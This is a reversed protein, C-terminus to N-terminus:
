SRSRQMRARTNVIARKNNGLALAYEIAGSLEQYSQPWHILYAYGSQHNDFFRDPVIINGTLDSAHYGPPLAIGLLSHQEDLTAHIEWDIWRRKWTESGMLVITLSSGRIHEEKITRSIYQTDDSNIMRALSNDTFLELQSSFTNSFKNYWYQDNAHHYSVFIKRKTIPPLLGLLDSLSRDGNM